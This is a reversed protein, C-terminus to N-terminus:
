PPRKSKVAWNGHKSIFAINKDYGHKNKLKRELVMAEKKTDLEVFWLLKWPRFRATHKVRGYNHSKLREEMNSTFGKYFRRFEPSYLIYVIYM